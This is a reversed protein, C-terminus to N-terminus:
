AFETLQVSTTNNTRIKKKKERLNNAKEREVSFKEAYRRVLLSLADRGRRLCFNVAVKKREYTNVHLLQMYKFLDESNSCEYQIKALRAAFCYSMDFHWTWTQHQDDDIGCCKIDGTQMIRSFKLHQFIALDHHVDYRNRLKTYMKTLAENLQANIRDFEQLYKPPSAAILLPPKPANHVTAAIQLLPKPNYYLTVGNLWLAGTIMCLVCLCKTFTARNVVPILRRNAVQTRLCECAKRVVIELLRLLLYLLLAIRLPPTLNYYPTVADLWVAGKITCLACLCAMFKVPNVLLYTEQVLFEVLYCLLFLLIMDLIM